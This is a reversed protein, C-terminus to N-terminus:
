VDAEGVAFVQVFPHVVRSDGIEPAFGTGLGVLLVEELVGELRLVTHRHYAAPVAFGKAIELYVPHLLVWYGLVERVYAIIIPAEVTQHAFLLESTRMPDPNPQARQHMPRPQAIIPSLSHKALGPNIVLLIDGHIDIGLFPQRVSMQTPQRLIAEIRPKILFPLQRKRM